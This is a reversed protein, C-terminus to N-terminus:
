EQNSPRSPSEAVRTERHSAIRRRLLRRLSVWRRLEKTDTQARTEPHCFPVEWTAKKGLDLASDTSDSVAAAPHLNETRVKLAQHEFTWFRSGLTITSPFRLWPVSREPYVLFMLCFVTVLSACCAMGGLPLALALKPFCNLRSRRDTSTIESRAEPVRLEVPWITRVFLKGGKSNRCFLLGCPWPYKTRSVGNPVILTPCFFSFESELMIQM